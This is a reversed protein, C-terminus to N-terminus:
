GEVIEFEFFSGKLPVNDEDGDNDLINYTKIVRGEEIVEIDESIVDYTQGKTYMFSLMSYTCLLKM